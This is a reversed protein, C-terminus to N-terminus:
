VRPDWVCIMMSEIMRWQVGSLSRWLVVVVGSWERSGGAGLGCVGVEVAREGM